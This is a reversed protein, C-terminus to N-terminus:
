VLGAPLNAPKRGVALFHLVSIIGGLQANNGTDAVDMSLYSYGSDLAAANIPIVYIGQKAAEGTLTLTSGAAQTTLIWQETGDMTTASKRYYRTIGALVQSTGGTKANAENLTLIPTDGATGAAKFFVFSVAEANKLSVRKGVNAGTQLDVPAFDISFDYQLGLGEM